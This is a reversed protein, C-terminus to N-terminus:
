PWSAMGLISPKLDISVGNMRSWQGSPICGELKSQPGSRCTCLCLINEERLCYLLCLKSTDNARRNLESRRLTLLIESMRQLRDPYYEYAESYNVKLGRKKEKKERKERRGKTNKGVKM